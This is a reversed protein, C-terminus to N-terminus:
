CIIIKYLFNFLKIDELGYELVLLILKISNYNLNYKTFFLYTGDNNIDVTENSYENSLNLINYLVPSKKITDRSVNIIMNDSTGISIYKDYTDNKILDSNM